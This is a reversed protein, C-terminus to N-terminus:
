DGKEARGALVGGVYRVPERLKLPPRGIAGGGEGVGDAFLFTRLPVCVYCFSVARLSILTQSIVDPWPMPEQGNPKLTPENPWDPVEKNDLMTFPPSAENPLSTMKNNKEVPTIVVPVVPTPVLSPPPLSPPPLSSPIEKSSRESERPSSGNEERKPLEAVGIEAVHEGEGDGVPWNMYPHEDLMELQKTFLAALARHLFEYQNKSQVMSARQRRLELVADYVKYNEPLTGLKLHTKAIDLAIITGTRGCGASCHVLITNAYPPREYSHMLDLMDLLPEVTEPCGHDPWQIYHFQRIVRVIKKGSADTQELNLSRVVYEDHPKEERLLTINTNAYTMTEGADPWYKECKVREDEILNCLMVIQEIKHQLIMKWFDNVTHPVPGQSAIYSITGEAGIINSANIYDDDETPIMEDDSAASLVVRTTDYPLIDRFRNKSANARSVGASCSFEKSIKFEEQADRIDYFERNYSDPTREEVDRVLAKMVETMRQRKMLTVDSEDPKNGNMDDRPYTATAQHHLTSFTSRGLEILLHHTLERFRHCSIVVYYPKM